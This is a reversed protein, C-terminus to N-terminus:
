RALAENVVPSAAAPIRLQVSTGRGPSSSISLDARALRARSRMTRLGFGPYSSSDNGAPAVDFGCGDDRVEITLAGDAEAAQIWIRHARAHRCANNVAEQVISFVSSEIAQDFRSHVNVLTLEVIRPEVFQLRDVYAQLAPGIGDSQLVAPKLDFLINRVQYLAKQGLAELQPLEDEAREPARELAEKLFRVSMILATLIQAPGDHLNRAIEHRLAKELWVSQDREEVLREFLRANQIAIAGQSALAALFEEDDAGFGGGSAKRTAQLVGIQMGEAILPVTIGAGDSDRCGSLAGGPQDEDEEERAALVCENIAPDFLLLSCERCDSLSHAARVIKNLVAGLEVQSTIDAAAKQLALLRELRAQLREYDGISYATQVPLLSTQELMM